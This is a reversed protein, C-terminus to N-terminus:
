SLPRSRLLDKDTLYMLWPFWTVPLFSVSLLLFSLFLTVMIFMPSTLHHMLTNESDNAIKAVFLSTKISLLPDDLLLYRKRENTEVPSVSLPLRLVSICQQADGSVLWDLDEGFRDSLDSRERDPALFHCIASSALSLEPGVQFIGYWISSALQAGSIIARSFDENM